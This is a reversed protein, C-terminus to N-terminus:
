TGSIIKITKSKNSRAENIITKEKKNDLNLKAKKTSFNLEEQKASASSISHSIKGRKSKVPLNPTLWDALM